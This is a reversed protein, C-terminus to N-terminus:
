CIFARGHAPGECRWSESLNQPYDAIMFTKSAYFVSQLTQKIVGQDVEALTMEWEVTKLWEEVDTRKHGFYSVVFDVDDKQRATESNFNRVFPQLSTLFEAVQHADASTSAAISWCPWPASSLCM